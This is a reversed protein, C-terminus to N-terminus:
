GNPTMMWLSVGTLADHLTEPQEKAYTIAEAIKSRGDVSFGRKELVAELRTRHKELPEKLEADTFYAGEYEPKDNFFGENFDGEVILLSPSELLKADLEMMLHNLSLYPALKFIHPDNVPMMVPMGKKDIHSMVHREQIWYTVVTLNM